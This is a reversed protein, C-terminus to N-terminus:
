HIDVRLSCGVICPPDNDDGPDIELHLLRFPYDYLDENWPPLQRENRVEKVFHNYAKRLSEMEARQNDGLAVYDESLLFDLMSNSARQLKARAAAMEPALPFDSMIDVDKPLQHYAVICARLLAPLEDHIIRSKLTPDRPSIVRNWPFVLLRRAVSGKPDNLYSKPLENTALLGQVPFNEVDRPQGYKVPIRVSEGAVISLFFALSCGFNEGRVEPAIIIRKDPLTDRSFTDEQDAGFIGVDQWHFLHKFVEQVTSKGSGGVGWDCPWYQCSDMAGAPWFTRGLTALKLYITDNSWEQDTFIKIINPMDIERLTRKRYAYQVAGHNWPVSDDDDDNKDNDDDDDDGNGRARMANPSPFRISGRPSPQPSVLDDQDDSSMDSEEEMSRSRTRRPGVSSGTEDMEDEAIFYVDAFRHGAMFKYTSYGQALKPFTGPVDEYYAFTDTEGCYVGDEFSWMLPMENVEPVEDDVCKKIYVVVDKLIGSHLITTWLDGRYEKRVMDYVLQEISEKIPAYAYTCVKEGDERVFVVQRYLYDSNVKKRFKRERFKDLLFIVLKTHRDFKKSDEMAIPKSIYLFKQFDCGNLDAVRFWKDPHANELLMTFNMCMISAADMIKYLNDALVVLKALVANIVTHHEGRTRDDGDTEKSEEDFRADDAGGGGASSGGASLRYEQIRHIVYNMRKKAEEVGDLRTNAHAVSAEPVVLRRTQTSFFGLNEMTRLISYELPQGRLGRLWTNYPAVVENRILNYLEEPFHQPVLHRLTRLHQALEDGHSPPDEDRVDVQVTLTHAHAHGTEGQWPPEQYEEDENENENDVMLSEEDYLSM